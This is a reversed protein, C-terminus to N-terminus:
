RYRIRPDFYAYAVDVVLNAVAIFAAYFLTAGMIMGYDRANISQVLLRGAGPISYLQEVVFSGTLLGATLPGIVTLMPIAANPMTHGSLVRWGSLGKARATRVYDQELVELVSARTVRALYAAPLAALTLTPLIMQEWRPLWGPLLGNRMDWGFTPLLHLKAGFIYLLFVGFVFSPVAAGASAFVVSAYDIAKNRHVASAVGLTVGVVLALSLALLGLVASVKFGRLIIDTVPKDQRQYSIGLDGQVANLVFSTYQEWLPKDLGYKADLNRQVNDPLRREEDWPGGEIAHMLVFTVLSIFFLVPILWLLRRLIYGAM